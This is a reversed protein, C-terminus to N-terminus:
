LFDLLRVFLMQSTIILKILSIIVECFRIKNM